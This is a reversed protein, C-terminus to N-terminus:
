DRKGRRQTTAAAESVRPQQTGGGDTSTAGQQPPKAPESGASILQMVIFILFVYWYRQFISTPKENADQPQGPVGGSKIFFKLGPPPKTTPLILKLVM